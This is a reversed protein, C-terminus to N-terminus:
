LFVPIMVDSLTFQEEEERHHCSQLGISMSYVDVRYAIMKSIVTALIYIDGFGKVLNWFASQEAGFGDM